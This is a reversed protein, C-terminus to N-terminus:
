FQFLSKSPQQQTRSFFRGSWNHAKVDSTVEAIFSVSSLLHYYSLCYKQIASFSAPQNPCVTPFYSFKDVLKIDSLSFMYFYVLSDVCFM